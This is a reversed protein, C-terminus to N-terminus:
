KERRYMLIALCVCVCTFCPSFHRLSVRNERAQQRLTELDSSIAEASNLRNAASNVWALLDHCNAKFEAAERSAAEVASKRSDTFRLLSSDPRQVKPLSVSMMISTWFIQQDGLHQGLKKTTDSLHQGLKKTPDCM